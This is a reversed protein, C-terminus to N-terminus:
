SGLGGYQLKESTNTLISKYPTEGDRSIWPLLSYLDQQPANM